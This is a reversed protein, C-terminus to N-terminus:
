AERQTSILVYKVFKLKGEDGSKKNKARIDEFLFTVSGHMTVTVINCPLGTEHVLSDPLASVEAEKLSEPDFRMEASHLMELGKGVNLKGTYLSHTLGANNLVNHHNSTLKQAYLLGPGTVSLSLRHPFSTFSMVAKTDYFDLLEDVGQNKESAKQSSEYYGNMFDRVINQVPNTPPEIPCRVIPLSDVFTKRNIDASDIRQLSPLMKIKQIIKEQKVAEYLPNSVLVLHKLKLPALRPIEEVNRIENGELSLFSLKIGDILFQSVYHLSRIGNKALYLANCTPRRKVECSVVRCWLESNLDPRHDTVEEIDALSTLDLCGSLEDFRAHKQIALNLIGSLLVVKDPDVSKGVITNGQRNGGAASAKMGFGGRGGKKKGM